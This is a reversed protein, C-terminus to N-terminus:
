EEAETDSAAQENNNEETGATEGEPTTPAPVKFLDTGIRQLYAILAIAQKEHKAAPGGQSVIDAAVEEAQRRAISETNELTDDSYPAGLFKATQVHPLIEGFKLDQELLHRYSPMVSGESVDTPNEFHRWHWASSQKGGERALDPGIRRSGWQFPRDYVFEGPKSYEGYRETEAVM